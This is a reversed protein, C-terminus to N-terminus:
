CNKTGFKMYITHIAECESCNNYVVNSGSFYNGTYSTPTFAPLGTTSQYFSWCDGNSDKQVKGVTTTSGSVTQSIFETGDCKQYVYYTPYTYCQQTVPNVNGNIINANSSNNGFFCSTATASTLTSSWTNNPITNTVSTGDNYLTESLNKDIWVQNNIVIGDYLTGNKGVYADPIFMGNIEGTVAPRVLRISCGYSKPFIDRYVDPSYHELRRAAMLAGNTVPPTSLSNASWWLGEFGLGEFVGNDKRRGGATGAWGSSSANTQAGLNPSEWCTAELDRTYDKMKGGAITGLSGTITVSTPATGNNLFTVLNNWDSETPIVWTTANASGTNVIGGPGRGQLPASGKDVVYGNYLLGHTCELCNGCPITIINSGSTACGNCPNGGIATSGSPCWSVYSSASPIVDVPYSYAYYSQTVFTTANVQLMSQTIPDLYTSDWVINLDNYNSASVIQQPTMDLIIGGLGGNATTCYKFYDPNAEFNIEHCGASMTVPYIYLNNSPYFKGGYTMTTGTPTNLSSNPNISWNTLFAYENNTTQYYYDVFASYIQDNIYPNLTNLPTPLTGFTTYFNAGWWGSGTFPIRAYANQSYAPYNFVSNGVYAPASTETPSTCMITNGDLKIKLAGTGIIGVYYTKNTPANITTGFGVWRDGVGYTGAPFSQPIGSVTNRALQAVWRSTWNNGLDPQHWFSSSLIDFTYQTNYVLSSGSFPSPNNISSYGAGSFSWSHYLVPQAMGFNKRFIQDYNAPTLGYELQNLSSGPIVDGNSINSQSVSSPTYLGASASIMASGTTICSGSGNSTFGEPCLCDYSASTYSYISGTIYCYEPLPPTVSGTDISGTGSGTPPTSGSPPPLVPPCGILTVCINDLAVRGNTGVFFTLDTTAVNNLTFTYATPVTTLPGTGQPLNTTYNGTDVTISNNPSDSTNWAQFCVNYSCSLNFLNPQTLSMSSTGSTSFSSVTSALAYGQSFDWGGIGSTFTSPSFAWNTSGQSFNSNAVINLDPDCSCTTPNGGIPPNCIAECASLTSFAGGSGSPVQVCGNQTCAYWSSTQPSSCSVECQTFTAYQFTSGSPAEICNGNICNYGYSSSVTPTLSCSISCSALTSWTGISGSPSAVCGNPGCNYGWNVTGPTPSFTPCPKNPLSQAANLLFFGKHGFFNYWSPAPFVPCKADFNDLVHFFTKDNLVDMTSAPTAVWKHKNTITFPTGNYNTGSFTVSPKWYIRYLETSGFGVPTSYDPLLFEYVKQGNKYTGNWQGGLNGTFNYANSSSFTFKLCNTCKGMTPWKSLPKIFEVALDFKGKTVYTKTGDINKSVIKVGDGMEVDDIIPITLIITKSNSLNIETVTGLFNIIAASATTPVLIDDAYQDNQLIDRISSIDSNNDKILTKLGPTPTGKFSMVNNLVDYQIFSYTTM